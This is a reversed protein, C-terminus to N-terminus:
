MLYTIWAPEKANRNRRKPYNRMAKRAANQFSFTISTSKLGEETLAYNTHWPYDKTVACTEDRNMLELYKVFRGYYRDSFLSNKKRFEWFFPYDFDVKGRHDLASTSLVVGSTNIHDLRFGSCEIYTTDTTRQRWARNNKEWFKEFDNKVPSSDQVSDSVEEVVKEASTQIVAEGEVALCRKTGAIVALVIIGTKLLSAM